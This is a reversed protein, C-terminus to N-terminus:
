GIKEILQIIDGIDERSLYLFDRITEALLRTSHNEEKVTLSVLGHTTGLMKKTDDFMPMTVQGKFKCIVGTRMKMSLTIQNGLGSGDRSTLTASKIKM